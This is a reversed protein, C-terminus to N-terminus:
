QDRWVCSGFVSANCCPGDSTGVQLLKALGIGKLPVSKKFLM